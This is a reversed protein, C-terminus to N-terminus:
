LIKAMQMPVSPDIATAELRLLYDCLTRLGDMQAPIHLRRGAADEVVFKSWATSYEVRFVKSWELADAGFPGVRVTIAADSLVVQMCCVGMTHWLSALFVPFMFFAYGMRLWFGLPM